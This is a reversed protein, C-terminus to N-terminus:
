GSGLAERLADAGTIPLGCTQGRCVLAAAEGGAVRKGFAPHSPPLQANAAIQVIVRNPDACAYAVQILARTQAQGGDGVIVIQLPHLMFDFANLLGAMPFVNRALEPAFAQVLEDARQRYREDGTLLHLRALVDLMTANGAPTAHDNATRPRAVLPEADDATFFYGGEGAAWYHEDAAAVWAKAHDLYDPKATAEFLALAARAMAAYDDLVAQDSLRGACWSHGLRGQHNMKTVVFAFAREAAALWQPREFIMGADALAAIALGNWDALVKGDRGPRPRMERAKALVGRCKALLAEHAADGIAPQKSRNLINVGEWNGAASVDYAAKFAAADAGLLGDIEAEPWVYFRGEHGETDADLSAAFAAGEVLMERMLWDVTEEARMRYLPSKTAAWLRALLALLQANDYLMKEFHPALWQADTSYRAYGGGLHDYIGGQSMRNLTLILADAFPTQASKGRESRWHARRLLEMVGPQPFKPASGFGGHVPDVEQLLRAAIADLTAPTMPPAESGPQLKAPQTVSKLAGVIAARNAEVADPKARWVEALSALVQRFGPRGYRPEPPYYTGGWFPDGQPTLFMTLPWGGQEGMLALATQYLSDIDPREERDVKINIFLSNMLEAIEPNEFSEHAMVHCWHCAAYGVSLLIPRNLAQAEALAASNWGRWHVPNNQHQLLYPSTENALLNAAASPPAPM